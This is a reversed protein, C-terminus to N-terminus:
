EALRGRESSCPNNSETPHSESSRASSHLVIGAIRLQPQDARVLINRGHVKTDAIVLTPCYPIPQNKRAIATRSGGPIEGKGVALDPM